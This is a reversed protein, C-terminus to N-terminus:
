KPSYREKIMNINEIAVQLQNLAEMSERSSQRDLTIVLGCGACIFEDCGLLKPISLEILFGCEPCTLGPRQSKIDNMM